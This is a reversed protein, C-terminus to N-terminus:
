RKEAAAKKMAQTVVYARVAEAQEPTLYDAFSAMGNDSLSGEILVSRWADRSTAIQSRFLDPNTPGGHCISCYTFYFKEGEALQAATFSENSAPYPLPESAPTEPLKATGGLKFVLLMGPPPPTPMWDAARAMGMSGGYGALVAVYQVGDVRYTMPGAMVGRGADFSWLEKGDRADYAHFKAYADGEFVLNGATALTGGNWPWDREIKWAAEQKVPDWAVLWGKYVGEKERGPLPGSM